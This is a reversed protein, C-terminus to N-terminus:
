ANWRSRKSSGSVFRMSSFNSSKSSVFTSCSAKSNLADGPDGVTKVRFTMDNLPFPDRLVLVAVGWSEEGECAVVVASGSHSEGVEAGTAVRSM